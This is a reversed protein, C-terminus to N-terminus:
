SSHMPITFRLAEGARDRAGAQESNYLERRVDEADYAHLVAPPGSRQWDYSAIAWVIGDRAADSSVTPTAGADPYTPSNSAHVM